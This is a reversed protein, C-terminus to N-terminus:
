DSSSLLKLTEGSPFGLIAISGLVDLIYCIPAISSEGLALVALNFSFYCKNVKVAAV